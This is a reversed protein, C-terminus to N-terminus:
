RATAHQHHRTDTHQQPQAHVAASQHATSVCCRRCFKVPGSRSVILARCRLAVSAAAPRASETLVPQAHGHWCTHLCVSLCVSVSVSLCICTSM